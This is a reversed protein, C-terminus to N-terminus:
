TMQKRTLTEQPIATVDILAGPRETGEPYPDPHLWVERGVIKVDIGAEFRIHEM